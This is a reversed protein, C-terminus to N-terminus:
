KEVFVIDLLDATFRIRQNLQQVVASLTVETRGCILLKDDEPRRGTASVGVLWDDITGM